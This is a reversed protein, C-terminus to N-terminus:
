EYQATHLPTANINMSFLDNEMEVLHVAHKVIIM